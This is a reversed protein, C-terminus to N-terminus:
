LHYAAGIYQFAFGLVLFLGSWFNIKRTKRQAKTLVRALRKEWGVALFVDGGSMVELLARQDEKSKSKFEALLENEFDFKNSCFLLIAGATLSLLLGLMSLYSMSLIGQIIETFSTDFMNTEKINQTM